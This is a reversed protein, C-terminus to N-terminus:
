EGRLVKRMDKMASVLDDSFSCWDQIFYRLADDDFLGADDLDLLEGDERDAANYPLSIFGEKVV